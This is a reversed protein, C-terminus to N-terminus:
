WTTLLLHNVTLAVAAQVALWMRRDGPPILAAGAMLWGAFPLWIREVEAKSYGSVDAAVIAAAVALPLLWRGSAGAGPRRLNAVVAHGAGSIGARLGGAQWGTCAARRVIVAAAPGASVALVALDAWVWYGYPRRSALGQYYREIVLHYGTLWHFGAATFGAAVLAAGAGAWWATRRHPGSLILVAVVIPAMLVLGYSLYCGFALLVGGAFAAGAVRRTVGHALLAVGVATVGAFMGDASVGSWVAGPFVVVFPVVARAADDTGLLRVTYPVAVAVLAAALICLAGAPAGGGLGARDLWVFALLAGPPHGAVHTTWSDPQFDLIRATFGRLMAPIGSVGGVEHLYEYRTTLRGAIGRQWGDVLALSATWAAATAYALVLLRRWPLAAALAPGWRCVLVALVVALPTGPGAHPLWAAFLPAASAHVPHGLLYLVAGVAAASAFLSLAAGAAILDARAPRHRTRVPATM